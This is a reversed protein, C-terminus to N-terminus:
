GVGARFWLRPRLALKVQLGRTPLKPHEVYHQLHVLDPHHLNTAIWQSGPQSRMLYRGNTCRPAFWPEAHIM